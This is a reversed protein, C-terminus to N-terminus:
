EVEEREPIADEEYYGGTGDVLVEYDERIEYVGNRTIAITIACHHARKHEFDLENNIEDYLDEMAEQLTLTSGRVPIARHSYPTFNCGDFNGDYYQTELSVDSINNAQLTKRILRMHRAIDSNM